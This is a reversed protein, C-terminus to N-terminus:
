LLSDSASVFMGNIKGDSNFNIAVVYGNSSKGVLTTPLFYAKYDGTAYKALTAASLAFDWPAVAGSNVYDMAKVAEVPTLDKSMESAAYVVRVSPAMYGELAATNKSEFAAKINDLTAQKPQVSTPKAIPTSTDTSKTAKDKAADLEKQVQLLKTAEAAKADKDQKNKWVYIGAGAVLLIVLLIIIIISANGSNNTNKIAFKGM